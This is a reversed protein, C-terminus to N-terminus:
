KEKSAEQAQQYLGRTAVRAIEEQGWGLLVRKEQENLWYPNMQQDINGVIEEASMGEGIFGEYQEHFLAAPHRRTPATPIETLIISGSPLNASQEPSAM